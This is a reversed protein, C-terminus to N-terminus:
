LNHNSCNKKDTTKNTTTLRFLQLRLCQWTWLIHSSELCLHARRTSETHQLHTMYNWLQNKIKKSRKIKSVTVINILLLDAKWSFLRMFTSNCTWSHTKGDSHLLIEKNTQITKNPAMKSSELKINFYGNIVLAWNLAFSVVARVITARNLNDLAHRKYITNTM